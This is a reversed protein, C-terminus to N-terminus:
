PSWDELLAAPDPREREPAALRPTGIHIFGVIREHTDLGLHAAVEPDYAMWATLWQAGFGYAQAAQLLAFCVCGATLLQEQEPVKHDPQLRAVVTVVLPAFSFRQRDKELAAPAADPDRQLTRTALFQGLADRADGTIRLFRFPVLKGHDPVRVASRLMALLTAEDPGPEGLQRSPTSRREDLAQLSFLTHM